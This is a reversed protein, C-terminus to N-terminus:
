PELLGLVTSRDGSLEYYRVALGARGGLVDWQPIGIGALTRDLIDPRRGDITHFM